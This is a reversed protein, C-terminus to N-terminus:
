RKSPRNALRNATVVLISIFRRLTGYYDPDYSGMIYDSMIGGSLVASAQSSNYISPLYKWERAGVDDSAVM